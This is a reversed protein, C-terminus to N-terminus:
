WEEDDEDEELEEEDDGDDDSLDFEEEYDEAIADWNTLLWNSIYRGVRTSQLVENGALKVILREIEDEM